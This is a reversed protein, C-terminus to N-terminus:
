LGAESSKRRDIVRDVLALIAALREGTAILDPRISPRRDVADAPLAIGDIASLSQLIELRGAQIM